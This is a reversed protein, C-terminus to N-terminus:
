GQNGEPFLRHQKVYDVADYEGFAEWNVFLQREHRYCPKKAFADGFDSCLFYQPWTRDRNKLRIVLKSSDESTADLEEKIGPNEEVVFTREGMCDVSM